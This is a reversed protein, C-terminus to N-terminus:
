NGFLERSQRLTWLKFSQPLSAVVPKDMRIGKRFVKEGNEGVTAPSENLYHIQNNVM